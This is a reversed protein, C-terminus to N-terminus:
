LYSGFENPKMPETLYIDLNGNRPTIHSFEPGTGLTMATPFSGKLLDQYPRNGPHEIGANMISPSPQLPFASAMSTTFTSLPPNAFGQSNEVTPSDNISIIELDSPNSTTDRSNNVFLGPVNSNPNLPHSVRLYTQLQLEPLFNLPISGSAAAHNTETQAFPSRNNTSLTSILNSSTTKEIIGSSSTTTSNISSDIKRKKKSPTKANTGSSSTKKPVVSSDDGYKDKARGLAHYYRNDDSLEYHDLIHKTRPSPYLAGLLHRISPIQLAKECGKNFQYVSKLDKVNPPKLNLNELNATLIGKLKQQSFLQLENSVNIDLIM